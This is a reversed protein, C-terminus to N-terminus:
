EKIWLLDWFVESVISLMKEDASTGKWKKNKKIEKKQDEHM